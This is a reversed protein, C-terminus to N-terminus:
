SPVLGLGSPIPYLDLGNCDLCYILNSSYSKSLLFSLNAYSNMIKQIYRVKKLSLIKLYFSCPLFLLTAALTFYNFIM